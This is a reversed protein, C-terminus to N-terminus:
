KSRMITSVEKTSFAANMLFEIVTDSQLARKAVIAEIHLYKNRITWPLMAGVLSFAFGALVGLIVLLFRIQGSM